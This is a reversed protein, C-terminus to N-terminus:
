VSRLLNQPPHAQLEVGPLVDAQNAAVPRALCRQQPEDGAGLRGVRARDLSGAAQPEPHEILLDVEGARGAM